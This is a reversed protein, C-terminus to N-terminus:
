EGTPFLLGAPPAPGASLADQSCATSVPGASLLPLSLLTRFLAGLWGSLPLREAWLGAWMGPNGAQELGDWWVAPWVWGGTLGTWGDPWVLM